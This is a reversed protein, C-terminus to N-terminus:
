WQNSATKCTRGGAGWDDSDPIEGVRPAVSRGSEKIAAGFSDKRERGSGATFRIDQEACRPECASLCFDVWKLREFDNRVGRTPFENAM